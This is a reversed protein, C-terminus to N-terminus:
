DLNIPPVDYPEVMDFGVVETVPLALKEDVLGITLRQTIENIELVVYPKVLKDGDRYEYKISVFQGREFKM